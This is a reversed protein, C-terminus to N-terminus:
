PALAAHPMLAMRGGDMQQTRSDVNVRDTGPQSVHGKRRRIDIGLDVQLHFGFCQCQTFDIGGMGWPFRPQLILVNHRKEAGQLVLTIHREATTPPPVM